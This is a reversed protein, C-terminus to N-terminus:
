CAGKVAERNLRPGKYELGPFGNPTTKKGEPVAIEAGSGVATTRAIDCILESRSAAM